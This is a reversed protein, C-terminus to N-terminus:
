LRGGPFATSLDAVRADRTGIPPLHWRREITAMISTTDHSTHDVFFPRRLAPSILLTPIRTGPGWQDAVAHRGSPPPVHDWQGGFEDYTVVILTHEADRGSQVAKILDVLHRSGTDESAYGPHENEEGVPKIFSVPTLRGAKAAAIFEVEDRLHATRAATGPAYNAFYNFPQHHYQFTADPCNPYVAGAATRPSTCTGPTTGNTWGPGGVNGNANDWGGSYWAWDIGASTLRDGITPTTQPPLRRSVATGPAFPQYPPQITNVAFDGCATGAPPPAAGAPVACTGDPNAAQTLARDATGPTAPHLLTGAPFGDPGVVSHLDDPGSRVANPFVPTNPTILWQHNLFSGGFSGQFFRDAVAYDPAGRGHLYEYIPLGRTDYTGMVLGVADSGAVYRDMAGGNIQYQENYFRHVLDRTCGGPLGQGKPIGNPVFQGPTPCTTDAPAIYNDIPFPRNTFASSVPTGGITGTCTAPLPPSTLNVDNMPLCPLATGDPAVQTQPRAHPLGDVREWGGFLNDFSHNEEYIVVIHDIAPRQGHDPLASATTTGLGLAPITLLVAVNKRYTRFNM